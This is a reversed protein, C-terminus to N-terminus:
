GHNADLCYAHVYTIRLYIALMAFKASWLTAILMHENIFMWKMNQVIKAEKEPSLFQAAEKPMFNSEAGRLLLFNMEFAMMTYSALGFVM